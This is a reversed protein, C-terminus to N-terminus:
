SPNAHTQTLGLAELQRSVEKTIWKPLLERLKGFAAGNRNFEKRCAPKCFRQDSRKQMFFKPCNDCRRRRLPPKEEDPPLDSAPDIQSADLAQKQLTPRVKM